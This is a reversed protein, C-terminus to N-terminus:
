RFMKNIDNILNQIKEKAKDEVSLNFDLKYQEMASRLNQLAQREKELEMILRDLNRYYRLMQIEQQSNQLAKTLDTTTVKNGDIAIKPSRSLLYAREFQRM